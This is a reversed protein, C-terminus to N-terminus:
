VVTINGIANYVNWDTNATVCVLHITDRTLTSALFGGTGTSTDMNGFHIVQSANQAVKWGGAGKGTVIIVDGISATSPLTVTVLAANNTIYASNSVAAQSTGTVESWVIAGAVSQWTATTSSTARLIQGTTPATAASVDVVTTASHLSKAAVNNTTSTITKNTFAESLALTALNSTSTPLTITAAGSLLNVATNGTLTKNTLVQNADTGVLTTDADPITLVRTTAASISSAQFKFQKTSTLDDQFTTSSDILTKNSITQIDTTGVVDGSPPTKTAWTDLDADWAQVTVGISGAGLKNNFTNWDTDSLAGTTSTSSLGLSLAQGLISLGNAISITVNPADTNVRGTTYYLNTGEALNTTSFPTLSVNGTLTNSGDVYTWALGTGDQILAAVRDDVRENTFYLNTNEAVALTDLTQFTKDGRYYQFTTGATIAGEKNNFTNWDTSSLAGTTAAGSLGLSLVQGLLSLGNATGLTVNPADTNVRATTYYLNTGEALDTTTKGSFATNFRAATYYLNTNEPVVSTDLVQFTKDGRWYQTTLGAAIPSEYDTGAIATSPTSVGLSVTHKLLGTTLSGLNFEGSLGAEATQTLYSAGVPAAVTPTQWTAATGGTATLVQGATPAAASVVDVVTTASHLSKAAVNNTTSTLTKNTLAQSDTDGVVAGSPATKTAWTDLDADWAQVNTGIVLGLNTRAGTDTSAGTGGRTIPLQGSWTIAHASGGSVMTVNTDNTFTQTAATLGNLSSIGTGAPTVWTAATGSSATLVQGAIPATAGSVDVTTTLSELAMTSGSTGTTDAANNPIDASVLARFAPAAPIGTAPGAWVTNATENAKSITITGSTTIPNGSLTFESPVALDVSTVTGTGGATSNITVDGTGADPGTESITINSGAIIKTVVAQGSTTVDLDARKVSGDLIDQSSIRTAAM